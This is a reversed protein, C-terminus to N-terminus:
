LSLNQLRCFNGAHWSVTSLKDTSSSSEDEKLSGTKVLKGGLKLALSEGRSNWGRKTNKLPKQPGCPKLATPTYANSNDWNPRTQYSGKCLAGTAPPEKSCSSLQVTSSKPPVKTDERPTFQQSTSDTDAVRALARSSQAHTILAGISPVAHRQRQCWTCIMYTQERLSSPPDCSKHSELKLSWIYAKNSVNKIEGKMIWLMVPGDLRRPLSPSHAPLSLNTFMLIKLTYKPQLIHSLFAWTLTFPKSQSGVSTDEYTKCNNMNRLHCVTKHMNNLIVLYIFLFPHRRDCWQSLVRM